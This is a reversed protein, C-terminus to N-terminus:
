RPADTRATAGPTAKRTDHLVFALREPPSLKDLVVLLALGVSDALTTLWGGLNDIVSTDTRSLRLWTEHVADDAEHLSGLMGYAVSRLRSRHAEFRDVLSIGEDM